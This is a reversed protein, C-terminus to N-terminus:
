RKAALIRQRHYDARALWHNYASNWRADQEPTLDSPICVGLTHGVEAITAERVLKELQLITMPIEKTTDRREM